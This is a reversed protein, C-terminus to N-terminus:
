SVFADGDGQSIIIEGAEELTRIERIIKAQAEEVQKVRVPGLVDMDETLGVAARESMNTLFKDRVDESVGKLAVALEKLDIHRMLTQVMRDELKCIDEFMFMQARVEEALETDLAELGELILRETNRDSHNIIDVLPKLGGVSSSESGQFVTSIRQQLQSEVQRVIDPSTADMMALRHAIDAQAEQPLGSLVAAAQKADMHAMVLAIMQPHEDQLFSLVMQPDVRRLFAFPMGVMQASQRSLIEHAKDHGLTAELVEEAYRLGGRAFYHRETALDKFEQLVGDAINPDIGDLRAIEASLQEIEGQSLSKLVKASQEKGIQVLLVAAKRVGPMELM